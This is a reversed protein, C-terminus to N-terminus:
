HSSNLRTSKRDPEGVPRPNHTFFDLSLSQVGQSVVFFLVFALPVLALGVCLACAAVFLASLVKRPTATGMGTV